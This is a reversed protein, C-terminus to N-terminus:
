KIAHCNCAYQEEVGVQVSAMKEVVCSLELRLCLLEFSAASATVRVKVRPTPHIKANKMSKRLSLFETRTILQSKM